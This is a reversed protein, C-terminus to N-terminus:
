TLSTLLSEENLLQDMTYIPCLADNQPSNRTSMLTEELSEDLYEANMELDESLLAMINEQSISNLEM